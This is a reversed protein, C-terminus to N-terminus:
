RRTKLSETRESICIERAVAGARSFPTALRYESRTAGLEEVERITKLVEQVEEETVKSNRVIEKLEM